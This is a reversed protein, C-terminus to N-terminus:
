LVWELGLRLLTERTPLGSDRDRGLAERLAERDAGAPAFALPDESTEPAMERDVWERLALAREAALRLEEESPVRGVVRAILSAWVTPPVEALEKRPRLGLLSLLTREELLSRIRAPDGPGLPEEDEGWPEEGESFLGAPLVKARALIEEELGEGDALPPRGTGRVALAKLNKSGLIAGAGGTAAGSGESLIPAEPDRREGEPGILALVWGSAHDELESRLAEEADPVEEGWLDDAEILDVDGDNVVLATPAEAKGTIVLLDYGARRLAGALAGGLDGQLVRGTRPSHGIVRTAGFSPTVRDSLPGAAFLIPTEEDLPSMGPETLDRFLRVGIGEGGLYLRFWEGPIPWEQVVEESLDVFLAKGWYGKM